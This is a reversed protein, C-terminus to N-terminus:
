IAIKDFASDQINQEFIGLMLEFETIQDQLFCTQHEMLDIVKTHEYMDTFYLQESFFNRLNIELDYSLHDSIVRVSNEDMFTSEPCLEHLFCFWPLGLGSQTMLHTLDHSSLSLFSRYNFIASGPSRPFSSEECPRARGEMYNKNMSLFDIGFTGNRLFTEGM